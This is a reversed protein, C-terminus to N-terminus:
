GESGDALTYILKSRGPKDVVSHTHCYQNVFIHCGLVILNPWIWIHRSTSM